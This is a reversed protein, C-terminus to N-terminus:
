QRKQFFDSFINKESMDVLEGNFDSFSKFYDVAKHVEEVNNFYVPISKLGTEFNITYIGRCSYSLVKVEQLRTSLNGFIITQTIEDFILSKKYNKLHFFISPIIMLLPLLAAYNYYSNLKFSDKDIVHFLLCFTFWGLSAKVFINWNIGHKIIDIKNKFIRSASLDKM